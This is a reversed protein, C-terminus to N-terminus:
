DVLMRKCAYVIGGIPRKAAHFAAPITAMLVAMMKVLADDSFRANSASYTCRQPVLNLAYVLV